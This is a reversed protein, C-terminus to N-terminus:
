EAPRGANIVGRSFTKDTNKFHLWMKSLRFNHFDETQLRVQIETGSIVPFYAGRPDLLISKSERVERDYNTRFLTSGYVKTKSSIDGEVCMLTKIGRSDFSIPGTTVIAKHPHHSVTLGLLQGDYRSLHTPTESSEGLGDETFVYCHKADGIWWHRHSPDFTVIPNDLKSMWQSYGLRSPLKGEGSLAREPMVFYLNYDTGVFLQATTDGAFCNRNLVGIDGFDQAGFTAVPEKSPALKVLGNSGYVVIEKGLPLLGLVQGMWPMPAWGVENGLTFEWELSGIKTWAVIDHGGVPVINELVRNGVREPGKPITCDGVILQGRFNTCIKFQAGKLEDVIAGDRLSWQGTPTSFVIFDMFDAIHPLDGWKHTLLHTLEWDNDVRYLADETFLLIYRNLVYLAPFPFSSKLQEYLPNIIDQRAELGNKTPVLNLSQTLVQVAPGINPEPQLGTVFGKDFVQNSERM